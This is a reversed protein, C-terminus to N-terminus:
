LCLRQSVQLNVLNSKKRNKLNDFFIKYRNLSSNSRKLSENNTLTTFRDSSYVKNELEEFSRKWNNSKAERALMRDTKPNLLSEASFHWFLSEFFCLLIWQMINSYLSTWNFLPTHTFGVYFDVCVM